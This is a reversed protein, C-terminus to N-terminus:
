PLFRAGSLIQFLDPSALMVPLGALLVLSRLTFGGVLCSTAGVLPALFPVRRTLGSLQLLCMLLPLGLGLGVVLAWFPISLQGNLM